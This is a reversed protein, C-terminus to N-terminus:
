RKPPTTQLPSQHQLNAAYRGHAELAKYSTLRRSNRRVSGAHQRTRVTASFSLLSVSPTSITV